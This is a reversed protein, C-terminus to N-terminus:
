KEFQMLCQKLCPWCIVPLTGNSFNIEIEIKIRDADNDKVPFTKSLKETALNENWPIEKECLDCFYKFM